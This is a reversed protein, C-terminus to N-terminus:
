LMGLENIIQDPVEQGLDWLEVIKDEKFRFFHALLFGTNEESQKVHSHVAVLEGDELSRLIRLKKNPNAKADDMMATRLSTADAKFFPNHQKFDEAIYLHFAKEVKAEGILRLFHEAKAKIPKM